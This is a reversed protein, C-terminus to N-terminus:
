SEPAQVLQDIKAACIFDNDSLGGIAHTTYSIRCSSYSITLAPHHDECTAIWAVANAFGLTRGYDPFKVTRMIHQGDGSISWDSHLAQLLSVSQETTLPEAGGECPKCRRRSLAETVM